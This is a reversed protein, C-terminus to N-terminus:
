KHQSYIGHLRISSQSTLWAASLHLRHNRYFRHHHFLFTTTSAILGSHHHRHGRALYHGVMLRRMDNLEDPLM